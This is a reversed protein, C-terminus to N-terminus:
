RLNSASGRISSLILTGGFGLGENDEFRVFVETQTTSKGFVSAAPIMIYHSSSDGLVRITQRSVGFAISTGTGFFSDASYYVDDLASWADSGSLNMLQIFTYTGDFWVGDVYKYDIGSTGSVNSDCAGANGIEESVNGLIKIIQTGGAPTDVAAVTGILVATEGKSKRFIAAVATVNDDSSKSARCSVIVDVVQRKSLGGEPAPIVFNFDIEGSGVTAGSSYAIPYNETVDGTIM